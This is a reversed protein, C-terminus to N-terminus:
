MREWATHKKYVKLIKVFDRFNERLNSEYITKYSKKIWKGNEFLIKNYTNEKIKKELEARYKKNMTVLDDDSDDEPYNFIYRKTLKRDTYITHNQGSKDQYEFVIEKQIYYDCRM